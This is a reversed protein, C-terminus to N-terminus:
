KAVLCDPVCVEARYTASDVLYAERRLSWSGYWEAWTMGPFYTATTGNWVLVTPVTFTAQAADVMRTILGFWGGPEVVDRGHRDKGITRFMSVEEAVGEAGPTGPDLPTDSM